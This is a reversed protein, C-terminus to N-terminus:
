RFIRRERVRYECLSDTMKEPISLKHGQCMRRSSSFSISLCGSPSVYYM